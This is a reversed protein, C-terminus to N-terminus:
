ASSLEKKLDETKLNFQFVIAVEFSSYLENFSFCLEREM